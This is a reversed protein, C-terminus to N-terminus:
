FGVAYSSTTLSARADMSCAELSREEALADVGAHGSGAVRGFQVREAEALELLPSAVVCRKAGTAGAIGAIGCCYRDSELSVVGSRSRGTRGSWEILLSDDDPGELWLLCSDLM